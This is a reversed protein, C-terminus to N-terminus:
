SFAPFERDRDVPKSSPNDTNGPFLLSNGYGDHANEELGNWVELFEKELKAIEKLRKLLSKKQWPHDFFEDPLEGHNTWSSKCECAQSDTMVVEYITRVEDKLKDRKVFMANRISDAITGRYYFCIESVDLKPKAM